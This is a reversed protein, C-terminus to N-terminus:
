EWADENSWSKQLPCRSIRPQASRMSDWDTWHGFALFGDTAAQPPASLPEALAPPKATMGGEGSRFGGARRGFDSHVAQLNRRVRVMATM